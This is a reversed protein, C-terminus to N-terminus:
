NRKIFKLRKMVLIVVKLSFALKILFHSIKIKLKFVFLIKIDYQFSKRFKANANRLYQLTEDFKTRFARLTAKVDEMYLDRDKLLKDQLAILRVSKTASIFDSELNSMDDKYQTALEQLKTQLGDYQKQMNEMTEEVGSCHRDVREEHM